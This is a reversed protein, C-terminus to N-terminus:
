YDKSSLNQLENFVMVIGDGEFIEAITFLSLQGKAFATNALYRTITKKANWSVTDATLYQKFDLGAMQQRLSYELAVMPVLDEVLEDSLSVLERLILSSLKLTKGDEFTSIFSDVDVSHSNSFEGEFRVTAHKM